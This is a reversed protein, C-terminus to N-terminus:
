FVMTKIVHEHKQLIAFFHPNEHEKYNKWRKEFDRFGKLITTNIFKKKTPDNLAKNISYDNFYIGPEVTIVM